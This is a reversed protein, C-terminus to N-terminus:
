SNPMTNTLLLNYYNITLNHNPQGVGGPGFFRSKSGSKKHSIIEVMQIKEYQKYTKIFNKSVTSLMVYKRRQNKNVFLSSKIHFKHKMDIYAFIVNVDNSIM